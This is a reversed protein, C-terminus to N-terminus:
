PLLLGISVMYLGGIRGKRLRAIVDEPPAQFNSPPTWRRDLFSPQNIVRHIGGEAALIVRGLRVNLGLGTHGTFYQDRNLGSTWFPRQQFGTMSYDSRIHKIGMDLYAYPVAWRFFSEKWFAFQGGLKVGIGQSFAHAETNNSWVEYRLSPQLELTARIGLRNRYFRYQMMPLQGRESDISGQTFRVPSYGIRVEHQYVTHLYQASASKFGLLVFCFILFFRLPTHM